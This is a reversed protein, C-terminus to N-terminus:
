KGEIYKTVAAVAEDPTAVAGGIFGTEYQLALDKIYHVMSGDSSRRQTIVHYPFGDAVVLFTASLVTSTTM